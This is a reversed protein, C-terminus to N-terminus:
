AKLPLVCSSYLCKQTGGYLQVSLVILLEYVYFRTRNTIGGKGTVMNFLLHLSEEGLNMEM